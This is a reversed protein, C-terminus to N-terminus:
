HCIPAMEWRWRCIQCLLIRLRPLTPSRPRAVLATGSDPFIAAQGDDLGALCFQDVGIKLEFVADPKRRRKSMRGALDAYVERRLVVMGHKGAVHHVVSQLAHFGVPASTRGRGSFGGFATLSDEAADGVAVGDDHGRVKWSLRRIRRCRRRHKATANCPTQCRRASARRGVFWATQRNLFLLIEQLKWRRMPKGALQFKM